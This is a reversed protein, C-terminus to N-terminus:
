LGLAAIFAEAEEESITAVRLMEVSDVAGVGQAEALQDLSKQAWFDELDPALVLQEVRAIETLHVSVIDSTASNYTITGQLRSRERLAEKIELAHDEDFRVSVGAGYPTRLRATHKEFDAEYLIGLLEGQDDSRISRRTAVRLRNRATEDLVAEHTEDAPLVFALAEHRGGIDLDEALQSLAATTDPFGIQSGALVDIATHIASRGLQVDDLDLAGEDSPVDPLSLELVLSGESIATVRLKTARVITQPLPGTAGSARGTLQAATRGIVRDIGGFLRALDSAYVEGLRANDGTLRLVLQAQM